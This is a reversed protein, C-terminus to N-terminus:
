GALGEKNDHVLRCPRCPSVLQQIASATHPYGFSISSAPDSVHIAPSWFSPPLSDLGPQSPCFVTRDTTYRCHCHQPRSSALPLLVAAAGSFVFNVPEILTGSARLLSSSSRTMDKKAVDKKTRHLQQPLGSNCSSFPRHCWEIQNKKKKRRVFM